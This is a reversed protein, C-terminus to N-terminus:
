EQAPGPADAGDGSSGAVDRRFFEVRNRVEEDEIQSFSQVMRILKGWENGRIAYKALFWVKLDDPDEPASGVYKEVRPVKERWREWDVIEVCFELVAEGLLNIRALRMKTSELQYEPDDLDDVMENEFATEIEKKPPEPDPYLELARAQIDWYMNGIFPGYRVEVGSALILSKWGETM